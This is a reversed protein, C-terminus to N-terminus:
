NYGPEPKHGDDIRSVWFATPGHIAARVAGTGQMGMKSSM